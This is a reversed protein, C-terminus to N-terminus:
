KNPSPVAKAQCAAKAAQLMQAFMGGQRKGLMSPSGQEVLEGSSLVLLNDCDMITDIRHAIVLLVRGNTSGQQQGSNNDSSHAFERLTKQIVADTARDVNATAEDLALVRANQLLARALCFLQRQGVSLNDGAEQMRAHLGGQSGSIHWRLKVAGLVEWLKADSHKDWPDLNSRITGSFLVPDQPIIALQSRLADLGISSVDVNDLYITGSTVDILRFLTLMLSSKGSGTRGVLSCSQGGQLEFTIDKLVPPLGPRYLATVHNYKLAGSRPWGAPPEGGGEEVSKPEQPLRTYELLRELATMCNEVETTQRVFWQMTGTLQLTYTLALALVASSVTSHTAMALLATSLLTSASLVDLRFGIWRSTVLFAYYWEGNHNLHSLFDQQFRHQASFARITPLGKLTASFAAFVPSRTVADWRKVERSTRVYRERILYFAVGLPLFLPLVVPVAVSVLIFAGVVQFGCQISDFLVAPLIDDVQSLDKSFRNLIRGTPNTHFFALPAHLVRTAMIDHIKSAATVCSQFFMFGRMFALIVVGLTLLGYVLMWRVELQSASSSKSWFALWLDSAVYTTQGLIVAFWLFLATATGLYWAYEQYVRFKVSGTERGEEKVLQGAPGAAVEAAEVDECSEDIKDSSLIRMLKSGFSKGRSGAHFLFSPKRGGLISLMSSPSRLDSITEADVNMTASVKEAVGVDVKMTASVKEPVGADVKMTASVKEAGEQIIASSDHKQTGQTCSVEREFSINKEKDSGSSDNGDVKTGPEAVLEDVTASEDMPVGAVGLPMGATLEPLSQLVVQQWSGLAKVSGGRLVMVRDCQPLFQRQHTVLIRTCGKIIGNPGLAREFLIRGVRPDVASLPDDLLQVAARSYCCRALAIRAKQGGSLNIGREGLETMDGAPLDKLDQELACAGLVEQYWEEEWASGFVINNRVSGSMIWPIQSCYAVSGIIVPGGDHASAAAGGPVGGDHSDGCAPLLEGLLAALFSSKGSGVEGTVGILEGPRVEIKLAKLTPGGLETIKADPDKMDITAAILSDGDDRVLEGQVPTYLYPVALLATEEEDKASKIKQTNVGQGASSMGAASKLSHAIKVVTAAVASSPNAVLASTTGGTSVGQQQQSQHLTIQIHGLPQTWDYNAGRLAVYGAGQSMVSRDSPNSSVFSEAKRSAAVAGGADVQPRENMQWSGLQPKHAPPKSPDQLTYHSHQPAPPEELSLFDDIRKLSVWMETFSQIAMIFFQVMSLRPLALLSLAYFASAISLTGNCARFTAFTAFAVVPTICVTLANNVARIRAMQNICGAEAKRISCLSKSVPREWSLMKMALAGQIVESSLRVREDTKEANHQRINGVPKVLAGQIPILLLTAAIGALAPLFGLDMSVMVLVAVVEIPGAWLFVWFPMADDFRRVDNSILNVVHGSSVHSVAASNLRLVKGHVAAVCQQRMRFGNLNGLYFLQHHLIAAAFGCLGLGLAIIWGQWEPPSNGAAYSQLWLLFTRLVVPSSLRLGVEIGAWMSQSAMGVWHLKLLTWSTPNIYATSNRSNTTWTAKTAAYSDEFAQSLDEAKDESPVLFAADAAVLPQKYAKKIISECWSFTFTQWINLKLHTKAQVQELSEPKPTTTLMRM